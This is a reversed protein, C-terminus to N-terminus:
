IDGNILEIPTKRRLLVVPIATSFLLVIVAFGVMCPVVKLFFLSNSEADMKMGSYLLVSLLFRGSVLGLLLPLILRLLNQCFLIGMLDRTKAGCCYWAGLDQTHTLLSISQASIGLLLVTIGLVLALELIMKRVRNTEEIEDKLFEDLWIFSAETGYKEIASLLEKELVSKSQEEDNRIVYFKFSLNIPSSDVELINNDLSRTYVSTNTDMWESTITITGKKLIGAVIYNMEYQGDTLSEFTKSVKTGVIIKGAFSDGLYLLKYHERETVPIAESEFFQQPTKGEKLELATLEWLGASLCIVRLNGEEDINHRLNGSEKILEELKPFKVQLSAGDGNEESSPLYRGYGQLGKLSSMEMNSIPPIIELEEGGVEIKKGILSESDCSVMGVRSLDISLGKEIRDLRSNGIEGLIVVLPILIFVFLLLIQNLRSIKKEQLNLDMSIQLYTRKKM